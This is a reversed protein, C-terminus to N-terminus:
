KMRRVKGEPCFWMVTYGFREMCRRCDLEHCIEKTEKMKKRITIEIPTGHVYFTKWNRVALKEEAKKSM